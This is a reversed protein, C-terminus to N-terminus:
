ENDKQIIFQHFINAKAAVADKSVKDVTDKPTHYVASRSDNTWPMGMITTAEVGIKGFEGADTGGILVAIPQM